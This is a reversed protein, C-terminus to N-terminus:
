EPEADTETLPTGEEKALRQKLSLLEQEVAEFLEDPAGTRMPGSAGPGVQLRRLLRAALIRRRLQKMQEILDRQQDALRAIESEMGANESLISAKKLLAVRALTERRSRLALEARETWIRSATAGEQLRSELFSRATGAQRSAEMLGRHAWELDRVYRRLRPGSRQGSSLEDLDATLLNRTREMLGM